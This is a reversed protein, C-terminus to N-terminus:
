TDNVTAVLQAGALCFSFLVFSVACLLSLLSCVMLPACFFFLFLFISKCRIHGHVFQKNSFHM